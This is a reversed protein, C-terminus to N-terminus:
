STAFNLYPIKYQDPFKVICQEEMAQIGLLALVSSYYAEEVLNEAKKGTIVAHCFAEVLELSGDNMAGVSSAGDTKSVKDMIFEGQYALATEPVWSPGAFAVNDFINHEIQNILQLIGPAPKVDEFYYKGKELEMTGKHGLIQEELGNFKNSIISEYTMNVGNGYHYILSVNDYVERGDKWFVIDGFGMVTEPIMKLVWNGVQLQHTALETMLGGSYEKYLRWNIKRELSPHDVSRRWDNNRFWYCRMGTIDGIIGSHIMEIAKLYKPDFLRQQGIYLVKGSDMYANYMALCDDPTNSMSKECFVHKGAKLADITIHAHEYLPTAILVGDIDSLELLDHYNSFSKAKPCLAVANQLHPAYNDCIAIIEVNQLTLLHNIHYLGRSGTGIIGLRAKEGKVEKQAESTCSYLWPFASILLSSGGMLGIEKIFNRREM